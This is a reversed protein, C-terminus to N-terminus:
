PWHNVISVTKEGRANVTRTSPMDFWVPAEDMSCINVLEYNRSKRSNIGFCHFDTIKEELYM